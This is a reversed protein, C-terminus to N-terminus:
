KNLELRMMVQFNKTFDNQIVLSSLLPRDKSFEIKIIDSVPNPSLSIGPLESKDANESALTEQETKQEQLVFKLPLTFQVAV